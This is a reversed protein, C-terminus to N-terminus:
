GLRRDRVQKTILRAPTGLPTNRETLEIFDDREIGSGPREFDLSQRREFRDDRMAQLVAKQRQNRRFELVNRNASSRDADPDLRGTELVSEHM